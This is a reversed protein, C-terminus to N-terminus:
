RIVGFADVAVRPRGPTGVAVVRITHTGVSTWSKTFAVYRYGSTEAYLDITAQFVGDVYIKVAGRNPGRTTIFSLSKATTRLRAQSGAAALFRLSGGSYSSSTAYVSPGAFTVASSGQQILSPKLTTGAQWASYNGARDRARVEFRYTHGPQLVVAASKGPVTTVTRFAGGDISRALQYWAIGAPGLDRGPWTVTARLGSGSLTTNSTLRTVPTGVVPKSADLVVSVLNSAQVPNGALDTVAGEPVQVTLTGNRWASNAVSFGYNAGSGFIAPIVWPSAAHSTGGLQVDERQLGTVPESFTVTIDFYDLDPSRHYTWHPTHYVAATPSDQDEAYAAQATVPSPPGVHEALDAVSDATVTLEVTGDNPHPASLTVSYASATGTISDVDWGNSTGGVSFDDVDLGEIPENFILGFTITQSGTPNTALATLSSVGPVTHDNDVGTTTAIRNAVNQRLQPFTPYYTDGPCATPNVNRHGSINNLLKSLGSEPNVYVSQGFPSIGHRELKWAIFRELASRAAATPLREQFNGILSVGVTAANFDRAHGGRVVNGALDEGTPTEGPAYPRSYRGEYIRGQEDILFNYGIDGFDSGVAKMYYIARVTAAPNPDYNRGATHHVIVKQLPHFNPPWIENGGSDFRLSEDAGWGARSIIPPQSVAASAVNIPADVFGKDAQADIATVTVRKLPQASTIRVFRAGGTWIVPGEVTAGDPGAPLADVHDAEAGDPPDGLPVDEGFENPQTAFALSVEAEPDGTWTLAVHSATIPLKVVRQRDVSTHVEHGTVKISPRALTPLAPLLATVLTAVLIGASTARALRRRAPRM